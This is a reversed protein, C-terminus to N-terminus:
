FLLLLRMVRILCSLLVLHADGLAVEPMKVSSCAVGRSTNHLHTSCLCHVQVLQRVEATSSWYPAGAVCM